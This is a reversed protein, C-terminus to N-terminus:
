FYNLSFILANFVINIFMTLIINKNKLYSFTIILSSIILSIEAHNQFVMLYVIYVIINIILFLINSKIIKKLGLRLIINEIVPYLLVTTLFMYMPIKQYLFNFKFITEEISKERIFIILKVLLFAFILIILFIFIEKIFYKNKINKFDKSLDDFYIYIITLLILSIILLRLIINIINDNGLSPLLINILGLPLIFVLISLLFKLNNNM